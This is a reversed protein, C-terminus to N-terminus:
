STKAAWAWTSKSRGLITCSTRRGMIQARTSPSLTSFEAPTGWRSRPNPTKKSSSTTSKIRAIASSTPSGALKSFPKEEWRDNTRTSSICSQSNKILTLTTRWIKFTLSLPHLTSRTRSIRRFRSMTKRSHNRRMQRKKLMITLVLRRMLM